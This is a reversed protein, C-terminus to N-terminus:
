RKRFRSVRQGDPTRATNLEAILADAYKVARRAFVEGWDGEQADAALMGSMLLTAMYERNTLPPPKSKKM